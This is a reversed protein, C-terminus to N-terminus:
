SSDCTVTENNVATEGCPTVFYTDLLLSAVQDDDLTDTSKLSDTDSCEEVNEFSKSPMKHKNLLNKHLPKDEESFLEFDKSKELIDSSVEHVKNIISANHNHDQELPASDSNVISICEEPIERQVKECENSKLQHQSLINVREKLPPHIEYKEIFSSKNHLSIETEDDNKKEESQQLDQLKRTQHIEDSIKELNRLTESYNLKVKIVKEEIQNIKKRQNELVQNLQSKLEFYPRSKIIARKLEQHLQFVKKEAESYASSTRAHEKESLTRETEAENVWKTAQNLMEQRASDFTHGKNLEEEALQVMEKAAIHSGNAREFRLAAKQTENQLQKARARAVYYPQAKEISTGIKKAYCTIKHTSDNLLIRFNTREEDLEIELKNILETAANLKELEIQIRPDVLEDESSM